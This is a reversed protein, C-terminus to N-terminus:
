ILQLLQQLQSENLTTQGIALSCGQNLTVDADSVLGGRAQIALTARIEGDASISGSTSIDGDCTVGGNVIELAPTASGAPPTITIGTARMPVTCTVLSSTFTMVSMATDIQEVADKLVNFNENITIRSGAISDTGLIETISIQTIM